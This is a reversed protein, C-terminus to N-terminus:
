DRSILKIFSISVLTIVFYIDILQNLLSIVQMM